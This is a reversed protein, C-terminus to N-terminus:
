RGMSNTQKRANATVAFDARRVWDSWEVGDPTKLWERFRRYAVDPDYFVEDMAAEIGTGRILQLSFAADVVAGAVSGVTGDHEKMGVTEPHNRYWDLLARAEQRGSWGLGQICAGTLIRVSVRDGQWLHQGSWYEPRSGELLFRLADDNHRALVGCLQPIFGLIVEDAPSVHKGAYEKTVAERLVQATASGGGFALMRVIHQKSWPGGGARYLAILRAESQASLRPVERILPRHEPRALLAEVM